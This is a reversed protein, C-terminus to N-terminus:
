RNMIEIARKHLHEKLNLIDMPTSVNYKHEENEGSIVIYKSRAKIYLRCIWTKEYNISFYGKTAKYNIKNEELIENLVSRITYFFVLEEDTTIIGNDKKASTEQIIENDLISDQSDDTTPLNPMKEEKDSLLAQKAIQYIENCAYCDALARHANNTDIKFQKRLYDLSYKELNPFASKMCDITDIYDNDFKRMDLLRYHEYIRTVDFNANHALVINNGVFNNFRHLVEEVPPASLLMEINIGTLSTIKQSIYNNVDDGNHLIPFLLSSFKDIVKNDVVKLAAIETIKCDMSLGTTEIDVICYNDPFSSLKNGLKRDKNAPLKPYLKMNKTIKKFNTKQAMNSSKEVEDNSSFLLSFGIISFLIVSALSSWFYDTTFLVYVKYFAYFLALCGFFKKM